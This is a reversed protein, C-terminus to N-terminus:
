KYGIKLDELEKTLKELNAEYEKNITLLEEQSLEEEVEESAPLVRNIVPIKRAIDLIPKRFVFAAGALGLIVIVIIIKKGKKKKPRELGTSTMKNTESKAM